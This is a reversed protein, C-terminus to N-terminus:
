WGSRADGAVDTVDDVHQVGVFPHVQGGDEAGLVAEPPVAGARAPGLAAVVVRSRAARTPVYTFLPCATASMKVADPTSM